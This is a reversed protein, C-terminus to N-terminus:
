AVEGDKDCQVRERFNDTAVARPQVEAAEVAADVVQQFSSKVADDDGARFGSLAIQSVFRVPVCKGVNEVPRLAIGRRGHERAQGCVRANEVTVRNFTARKTVFLESYELVLFGAFM